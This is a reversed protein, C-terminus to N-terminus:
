ERHTRSSVARRWKTVVPIKKRLQWQETETETRDRNRGQRQKQETEVQKLVLSM